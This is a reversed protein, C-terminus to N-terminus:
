KKELQSNLRKLYAISEQVPKALTYGVEYGKQTGMHQPELVRLEMSLMRLSRILTKRTFQKGLAAYAQRSTRPKGDSFLEVLAWDPVTLTERVRWVGDKRKRVHVQEM